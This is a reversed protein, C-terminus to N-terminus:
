ADSFITGSVLSSSLETEIQDAWNKLVPSEVSPSQKTELVPSSRDSSVVNLLVALPHDLDALSSSTAETAVLSLKNRNSPLFFAELVNQKTAEVVSLARRTSIKNFIELCINLTAKKSKAKTTIM